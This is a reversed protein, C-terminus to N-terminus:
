IQVKELQKLVYSKIEEIRPLEGVINGNEILPKLIKQMENGCNKCIEREKRYTLKSTMCNSCRFVEKKGGLKGRKAAPKGEIEVIDMAFDITKANSISTGIGFADANELELLEEEDIGGSIFIKVNEFGRIDLEWRVEDVLSRMSGRRNSPTDLRVAYLNKLTKSAELAAFKEDKYTDVLAIRPVDKPVIEDFYELARKLEGVTIILAHPMTGSAKKGILKQAGIGSFGDMGGLYAVRDIMPAIAPHMRRIGFSLIPKRTLKSLRAAKTAIGSAQCILGLIPTELECFISYEGEIRLVPEGRFFISGEPMSYVNLPFGRLLESVEEIGALIGWKYEKPLSSATFEAVVNKKIRKAKLIEKTRRFYIDTTEGKKIDDFSATHFM